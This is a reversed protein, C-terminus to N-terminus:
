LCHSAQNTETKPKVRAKGTSNKRRQEINRVSIEACGIFHEKKEQQRGLDLLYCSNSPFRLCVVAAFNM